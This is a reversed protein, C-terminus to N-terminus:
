TIGTRDKQDNRFLHNAGRKAMKRKPDDNYNKQIHCDSSFKFHNGCKTM